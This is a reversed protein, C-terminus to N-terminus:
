GSPSSSARRTAEEMRRYMHYRAVTTRALRPHRAILNLLVLAAGSPHRDGREWHRLTPLPFGFIHAFERQTLRMRRRILAVEPRPMPVHAHLHVRRRGQGRASESEFPDPPPADLGLNRFEPDLPTALPDGPDAWHRPVFDERECDEEPDKSEDLPVKPLPDPPLLPQGAPDLPDTPYAPPDNKRFTSM